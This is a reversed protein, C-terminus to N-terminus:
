ITTEGNHNKKWELRGNNSIKKAPVGAVAINKEVVNKNVLANAGIAVNDAITIEGLIVAGMGVVVGNGLRPANSTMGGAVIGTNIHLSCDSGVIALRNILIPGIHMIKLGKECTNLPVHMAYKNQFKNLKAKYLFYRIKKNTNYYYETKRLLIQHYVLLDRESNLILGLLRLKGGYKTSEYQIYEKLDKKTKIMYVGIIIIRSNLFSIYDFDDIYRKSSLISKFKSLARVYHGDKGNLKAQPLFVASKIEPMEMHVFVVKNKYKLKDFNVIDEYTCGDRESMMFFLNDNNIRKCRREWAAKADFFTKYHMCYISIDGLRAVPYDKETNKEEEFPLNIYYNLNECFRVFDNPKIFLNVTPTKFELGLDHYIVGGVCNSSIITFNSNKLNKRNIDNRKRRFFNRYTEKM